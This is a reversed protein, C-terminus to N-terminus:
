VKVKMTRMYRGLVCLSFARSWAPSTPERLFSQWVEDIGERHLMGLSKLDGLSQECLERLPGLMWRAIPLSFGRKAQSSLEPRLLGSFAKRLLPKKVKADPLRLRGPLSYVLDLMRRDLFPVRIELSHAMGNTDSDRLLMNAMYFRSELQSITWVADHPDLVVNKLAEPPMFADTLFLDASEVGLAALQQNSMVRRRQFYLDLVEGDTEMVDRLKQRFAQSRGMSVAAVVMHRLPRGWRHARLVHGRLRPLDTFSPYGGFLEDGGLGSLAVTIGEARIAKSIVYTNLGDMSPRDLSAFWDTAAATAKDGPIQLDTHKAGFLAATRRAPESESYEPEDAFGVTFTRLLGTHRSALGAIITSDLGSSLFVGVPVDSVLHDRVALEMTEQLALLTEAEQAQRNIAPFHWHARPPNPREQFMKELNLTQYCGAPFSRMGQFLTVPDQLTGYALAGALGQMDLKAEFRDFNPTVTNM